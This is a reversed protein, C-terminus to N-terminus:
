APFQDAECRGVLACPPLGLGLWGNAGAEGRYPCVWRPMNKKELRRGRQRQTEWSKSVVRMRSRAPRVRPGDGSLQPSKPQSREYAPLDAAAIAKSSGRPWRRSGGGSEGFGLPCGEDGGDPADFRPMEGGLINREQGSICGGRHLLPSDGLLKLRGLVLLGFVAQPKGM